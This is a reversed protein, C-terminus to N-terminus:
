RTNRWSPHTSFCFPLRMVSGVLIHPVVRFLAPGVSAVRGHYIGDDVHLVSIGVGVQEIRRFFPAVGGHMGAELWLSRSCTVMRTASDHVVRARVALAFVHAVRRELDSSGRGRLDPSHASLLLQDLISRGGSRLKTALHGRSETSRHRQEGIGPWDREFALERLLAHLQELVDVGEVTRLLHHHPGLRREVPDALLLAEHVHGLEQLQEVVEFNQLIRLRLVLHVGLLLQALGLKLGKVDLGEFGPRGVAFLDVEQAELVAEVVQELQPPM